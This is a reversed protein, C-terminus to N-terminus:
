SSKQPHFNLSPEPLEDLLEDTLKLLTVTGTTERATWYKGELRPNKGNIINLRMTGDHTDSRDRLNINPESAYSYCLRRMQKGPDIVFGESYSHSEMEATRMVCSIHLFSQKITLILPIPDLTNGNEKWNTQLHGQWTGNLDPFPVLWGQLFKLKWGWNAFIFFLLVFVTVVVPLPTMFSKFNGMSEGRIWGVSYWIPGLFGMLIYLFPKLNPNKM